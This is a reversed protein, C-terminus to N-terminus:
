GVVTVTGVESDVDLLYRDTATGSGAPAVVAGPAAPSRGAWPVAVMGAGGRLRLRVATAAPVAVALEGVAGTLDVPVSGTPAPLRLSVLGTGSGLELRRIRGAALDLHQEGAGAPLRIDWRVGRNLLIEVTDPGDAGTPVLGVRVRGPAGSVLPSLGSDAPTTVRYLLGPLDALRVEVRSAADRVILFAGTRGHLAGAQVHPQPGDDAPVQRAGITAAPSCAAVALTAVAAAGLRGRRAVTEM